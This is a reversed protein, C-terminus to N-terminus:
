AVQSETVVPYLGQERAELIVLEVMGNNEGYGIHINWSQSSDKVIRNDSFRIVLIDDEPYYISKRFSGM